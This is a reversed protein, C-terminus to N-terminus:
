LKGITLHSILGDLRHRSPLEPKPKGRIYEPNDALIHDAPLFRVRIAYRMSLYDLYADLPPLQAATLLKPIKTSM